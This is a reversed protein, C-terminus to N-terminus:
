KKKNTKIQNQSIQDPFIPNPYKKFKNKKKYTIQNNTKQHNNENIIKTIHPNFDQNKKYLHNIDRKLPSKLSSQNYKSTIM